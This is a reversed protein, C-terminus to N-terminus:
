QDIDSQQWFTSNHRIMARIDDVYYQGRESYRILGGALEIASEPSFIDDGQARLETRLRRLEVYAPNRNVNMFYRHTSESADSFKAVEHTMGPPRKNPVLGCGESYCWQGFYNSAETAFRSTGWASENAAQTLVLAEPLFDVRQQMVEFWRETSEGEEPFPLNYAQGFDTLAQREKGSISSQNKLSVILSREESIRQNELEIGPRLYDFFAKKKTPIDSIEAFNPNSTPLVPQKSTKTKKKKEFEETEVIVQTNHQYSTCSVVAVAAAGLIAALEKKLM